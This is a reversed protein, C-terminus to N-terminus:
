LLLPASIAQSLSPGAMMPEIPSLIMHGSMTKISHDSGLVPVMILGFGAGSRSNKRSKSDRLDGSENLGNSTSQGAKVGFCHQLEAAAMVAM